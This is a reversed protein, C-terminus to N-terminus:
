CCVKKISRPPYEPYMSKGPKFKTNQGRFSSQQYIEWCCNGHAMMHFVQRKELKRLRKYTKRGGGFRKTELTELTDKSLSGHTIELSCEFAQTALKTTLGGGRGSGVFSNCEDEYESYEDSRIGTEVDTDDDYDYEYDEYSVEDLKHCTVMTDLTVEAESYTEELVCRKKRLLKKVDLPNFNIVKNQNLGSDLLMWSYTPCQKLPLCIADEGTDAAWVYDGKENQVQNPFKFPSQHTSSFISLLLLSVIKRAM